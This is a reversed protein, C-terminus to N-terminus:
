PAPARPPTRVPPGRRMPGKGRMPPAGGAARAQEDEKAKVAEEFKAQAAEPKGEQKLLNAELMLLDSYDPDSADLGAQLAVRSDDLRGLNYLAQAKLYWLDASTAHRTLAEETLDLVQENERKGLLHRGLAAVARLNEPYAEVEQRLLQISRELDRRGAAAAALHFAVDREPSSSLLGMELYTLGLAFRQTRVYHVGLWGALNYDEPYEDLYELALTEAEAVKGGQRLTAVAQVRLRPSFPMAVALEQFMASAEDFKGERALHGAQITKLQLNDPDRSLAIEVAKRAEDHRGAQDHIQILRSWFEAIDPYDTTLKELIEVAEDVKNQHMARDALQGQRLMEIHDKPDAMDADPDFGGGSTYGLAALQQAVENNPANTGDNVPPGFNWTELQKRLRAVDDPRTDALNTTEGPDAVLDYLEPRPLDILKLPGDVVAVPPALQFREAVQYSEMYVPEDRGAILSRGSVGELPPLGVADLLTPTLDAISVPTDVVKGAEIGPGALIFPVRQTSDYVGLGHAVEHHDGLGEGHDGVLVVITPRDTFADFLRQLQDDLRALEADYPRGETKQIYDPWPLYPFHADYLHVWAFRPKSPDHLAEWRLIDDIVKDAAREAHWFDQSTKVEDFYADFGQDFGFRRTTVFAAVSAATRYGGARLREALTTADDELVNDGNSRIGHEPPYLGTFMTAHSPITLPLPSYARDFRTGRAAIGDITETFAKDYGYAGIRDARTTDLTVLLIDPLTEPPPPPPLEAEASAPAEAPPAEPTVPPPGEDPTSCGLLAILVPLHVTM